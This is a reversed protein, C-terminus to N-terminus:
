PFRREKMCKEAKHRIESPKSHRSAASLYTFTAREREQLLEALQERLARIERKLGELYDSLIIASNM